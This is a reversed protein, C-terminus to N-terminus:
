ASSFVKSLLETCSRVIRAISLAQLTSPQRLEQTDGELKPVLNKLWPVLHTFYDLDEKTFCSLLNKVTNSKDSEEIERNIGCYELM